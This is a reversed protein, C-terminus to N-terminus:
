LLQMQKTYNHHVNSGEHQVKTHPKNPTWELKGERYYGVAWKGIDDLTEWPWGLEEYVYLSRAIAAEEETKYSGLNTTVNVTRLQAVYKGTTARSVGRYKSTTGQLAKKYGRVNESISVLRLNNPHNNSRDGDIHDTTMEPWSGHALFWVIHHVYFIRGKVSVRFYRNKNSHGVEEGVEPSRRYKIKVILGKGSVEFREKMLDMQEQTPPKPTHYAV